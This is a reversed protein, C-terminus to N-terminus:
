DNKVDALDNINSTKEFKDKMKEYYFQALPQLDIEVEDVVEVNLLVLTNKDYSKTILQGKM